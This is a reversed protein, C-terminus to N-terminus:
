PAQRVSFSESCSDGQIDFPMKREKIVYKIFAQIVESPTFGLSVCLKEFDEKDKSDLSIAITANMSAGGEYYSFWSYRLSSLLAVKGTQAEHIQSAEIFLSFGFM